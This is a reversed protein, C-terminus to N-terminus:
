CLSMKTSRDAQHLPLSRRRIPLLANVNAIFWFLKPDRSYGNPYCEPEVARDRLLNPHDDLLRSLTAVDGAHIAAVAARFNKDRIVPRLLLEVIQDKERAPSM